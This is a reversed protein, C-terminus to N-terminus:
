FDYSDSIEPCRGELELANEGVEVRVRDPIEACAGAALLLFALCACPRM